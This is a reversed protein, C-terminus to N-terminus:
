AAKSTGAKVLALFSCGCSVFSVLWWRFGVVQAAVVLFVMSARAGLVTAAELAAGAMPRLGITTTAPRFSFTALSAGMSPMWATRM